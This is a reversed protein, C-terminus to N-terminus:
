YRRDRRVLAMVAVTIETTKAIRQRRQCSHKSRKSITVASIRIGRPPKNVASKAPQTKLRLAKWSSIDFLPVSRAGSNPTNHKVNLHSQGSSM